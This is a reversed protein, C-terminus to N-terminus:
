KRWTKQLPPAAKRRKWSVTMWAMWAVPPSIDTLWQQVQITDKQLNKALIALEFRNVSEESLKEAQIGSSTIFATMILISALPIGIAIGIKTSLRTQRLHRM